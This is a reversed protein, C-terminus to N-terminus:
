LRVEWGGLAKEVFHLRDQGWFLQGGVIFTPVGFVGRAVAEDTRTRLEEKVAPEDIRAALAAGGIEALVSREAIDRGERFYAAYLAHTLKPRQAPEAAVLLRMADVSRRPHGAPMQLPVGWHDAWRYLDLLNLRAKNPNMYPVGEAWIKQLVGGLLIPKWELTAGARAALAEIQTSALYAYPCVIDYYLEITNM